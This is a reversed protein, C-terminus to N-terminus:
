IRKNDQHASATAPRKIVNLAKLLNLAEYLQYDTDSLAQKGDSAAGTEGEGEPNELHGSLDREKVRQMEEVRTLRANEVVIDPEIGQAQISRGGPTYYRATTLKLARNNHLPLVTQVSGKGFTTTGMIVARSHDQLAGAVIESASASGGNVLVVIPVGKLEDGPAARFKMDSDPLRGQTYVVLGDDIFADSVDVAAQLVGGPNNRLDLVLGKLDADNEKRLKELLKLMDAGTNIQFQSLRVYGYDKQLLRGRVSQVQIVARTVTIELPKDIGARIITLVIDSGPKGRMLKVAEGLSLGKVPTSDLKIILDGAEVGAKKAPTDDIPTIVKVFGDEMGVEIGLGGFEGTTNIQLDQYAEPKLYASHPDLETLMGQIANELLTKDDVEEVYAQKIRDFVDAFTRLENIPLLGQEQQQTTDAASVDEDEAQGPEESSLAVPSVALLSILLSRQWILRWYSSPRFGM